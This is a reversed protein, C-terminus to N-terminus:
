QVPRADKSVVAAGHDGKTNLSHKMVECHKM